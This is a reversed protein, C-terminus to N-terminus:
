MRAEIDDLLSSAGIRFHDKNLWEEGLEQRVLAWWQLAQETTKIGGAPKIGARVGTCQHYDRIARCMAAGAPLTANVAEKGTSTKVFDSGAMLAVMAARYIIDPKELEGTALITKLCRDGAGERFARVEQYLLEWKGELAYSRRIVVDIESAGYDRCARVEEFRNVWPNLGHPFGASVTAVPLITGKTKLMVDRAAPVFVPYICVAAVGSKLARQCLARVRAETDDGNLTTLDILSILQRLRTSDTNVTELREVAALVDADTPPNALLAEDFPLGSNRM